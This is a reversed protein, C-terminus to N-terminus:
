FSSLAKALRDLLRSANKRTTTSRANMWTALHPGVHYYVAILWRGVASKKLILDRFGRLAPITSPHGLDVFSSAVFCRSGGLNLYVAKFEPMHKCKGSAIYRRITEAALPQFPFGKSFLTFKELSTKLEAMQHDNKARDYLRCIDWYVGNILILEYVDKERDFLNPHLKDRGCQKWMELILLYRQYFKIAEIVHGKQYLRVGEKALDMRKILLERRREENEKQLQKEVRLRFLRRTPRESSEPKDASM